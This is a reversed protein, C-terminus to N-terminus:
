LYDILGPTLEIADLWSKGYKSKSNVSGTYMVSLGESIHSFYKSSIDDGSTTYGGSDVAAGAVWSGLATAFSPKQHNKGKLDSQLSKLKSSYTSSRFSSSSSSNSSTGLIKMVAPQYASRVSKSSKSVKSWTSPDQSGTRAYNSQLWMAVHLNIWPRDLDSKTLKKLNLKKGTQIDLLPGLVSKGGTKVEASTGKGVTWSYQNADANANKQFETLEDSAGAPSVQVLGVSNGSDLRAASTNDTEFDSEAKIDALMVRVVVKTDVEPYYRSAANFLAMITENRDAKSKLMKLDGAWKRIAYLDNQAQAFGYKPNNTVVSQNPLNGSPENASEVAAVRGGSVSSASSDSDSSDDGNIRQATSGDGLGIRYFSGPSNSSTEQDASNTQMATQTATAAASGSLSSTATVASDLTAESSDLISSTAGSALTSSMTANTLTSNALSSENADSALSGTTMAANSTGMTNLVDSASSEDGDVSTMVSEDSSSTPLVQFNQASIKSSDTQTQKSKSAHHKSKHHHKSSHSSAKSSTQTAQDSATQTQSADSVTATVVHAGSSQQTNLYHVGGDVVVAGKASSGFIQNLAVSAGGGLDRSQAEQQVNHVVSQTTSPKASADSESRASRASLDHARALPHHPHVRREMRAAPLASVGQSAFITLALALLSWRFFTNRKSYTPGASYSTSM